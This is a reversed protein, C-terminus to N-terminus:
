PRFFLPQTFHGMHDISILKIQRWLYFNKRHERHKAEIMFGKLVIKIWNKKSKMTQKSMARKNERWPLIRHKNSIPILNHRLLLMILILKTLCILRNLIILKADFIMLHLNKSKKLISLFHNVVDIIQVRKTKIILISEFLDDKFARSM